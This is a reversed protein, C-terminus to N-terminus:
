SLLGRRVESEILTAADASNDHEWVIIVRWGAARLIRETEQDRARNKAIKQSWWSENSKPITKCRPCGHWFCGRVDVAVRPGIFVIDITRRLEPILRRHLRYRLRRRYLERRLALEPQTDRTRQAQMARRVVDTPPKLPPPIAPM